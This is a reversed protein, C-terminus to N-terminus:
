SLEIIGGGQFCARWVKGERNSEKNEPKYLYEMNSMDCQLLVFYFPDEYIFHVM